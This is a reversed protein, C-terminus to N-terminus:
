KGSANHRHEERHPRKLDERHKRVDQLALRRKGVLESPELERGREDLLKFRFFDGPEGYRMCAAGLVRGATLDPGIDFETGEFMITAM